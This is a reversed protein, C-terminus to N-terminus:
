YNSLFFIWRYILYQIFNFFNLVNDLKFTIFTAFSFKPQMSIINGENLIWNVTQNRFTISIIPDMLIRKCIFPSRPIKFVINRAYYHLFEIKNLCTLLQVSNFYHHGIAKWVLFAKNLNLFSQVIPFINIYIIYMVVKMINSWAVPSPLQM